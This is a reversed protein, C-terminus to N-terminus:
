GVEGNRRRCELAAILGLLADSEIRPVHDLNIGEASRSLGKHGLKEDYVRQISLTGDSNRREFNVWEGGGNRDRVTVTISAAVAAWREFVALAASLDAIVALELDRTLNANLCFTNM